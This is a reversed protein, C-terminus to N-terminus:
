MKIEANPSAVTFGAKSLREKKGGLEVGALYTRKPRAHVPYGGGPWHFTFREISAGCVLGISFPYNRLSIPPPNGSSFFLHRPHGIAVHAGSNSPSLETSQLM